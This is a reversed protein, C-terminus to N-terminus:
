GSSGKPGGVQFSLSLSSWLHLDLTYDLSISVLASGMLYQHWKPHGSASRDRRIYVYQVCMCLSLVQVLLHIHLPTTAFCTSCLAVRVKAYLVWIDPVRRLPTSGIDETVRNEGAFIWTKSLAIGCACPVM